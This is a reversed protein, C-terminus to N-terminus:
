LNLTLAGGMLVIDEELAMTPRFVSARTIFRKLNNEAPNCDLLMGIGDFEDWIVSGNTGIVTAYEAFINSM